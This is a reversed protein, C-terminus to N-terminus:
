LKIEELNFSMINPDTVTKLEAYEMKYFLNLFKLQKEVDLRDLFDMSEEVRLSQLM